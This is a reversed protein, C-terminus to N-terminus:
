KVSFNAMVLSITSPFCKECEIIQKVHSPLSVLHASPFYSFLAVCLLRSCPIADRVDDFPLKLKELRRWRRELQWNGCSNAAVNLLPLKWKLTELDKKFSRSLICFEELQKGVDDCNVCERFYVVCFFSVKGCERVISAFLKRDVFFNLASHMETTRHVNHWVEASFQWAGDDDAYPTHTLAGCISLMRTTASVTQTKDHGSYMILPHYPEHRQKDKRTFGNVNSYIRM